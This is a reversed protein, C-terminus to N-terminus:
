KKGDSSQATMPEVNWINEAYENICRSDYM